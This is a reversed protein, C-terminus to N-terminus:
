SEGDGTLGSKPPAQEKAVHKASWYMEMRIAREIQRDLADMLERDDESM